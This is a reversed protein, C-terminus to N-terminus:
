CCRPKPPGSSKERLFAEYAAGSSTLGNRALFRAYPSEDFIEGLTARLLTMANLMRKKVTHREVDRRNRRM